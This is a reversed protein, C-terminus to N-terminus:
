TSDTALTKTIIDDQLYNPLHPSYHILTQYNKHIETKDSRQVKSALDDTAYQGAFCYCIFTM